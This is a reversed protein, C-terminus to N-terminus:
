AKQMRLLQAVSLRPQDNANIHRMSYGHDSESRKWLNMSNLTKPHIAIHPHYM